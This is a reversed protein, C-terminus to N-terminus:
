PYPHNKRPRFLRDKPASGLLQQAMGAFEDDLATEASLMGSANLLSRRGQAVPSSTSTSAASRFKPVKCRWSAVLTEVLLSLNGPDALWPTFDNAEHAWVDRLPVPVLRGLIATTVPADGRGYPAAGCGVDANLNVWIVAGAPHDYPVARWATSCAGAGMRDGVQFDADIEAAPVCHRKTSGGVQDISLQPVTDVLDAVGAVAKSGKRILAIRGRVGINRTRM